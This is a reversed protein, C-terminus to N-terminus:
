WGCTRDKNQEDLWAKLPAFYALVASGDMERSGTFTELVDPWPKSAGMQLMEKFRAGVEENGYVSCRHLPGDWGAQECAAQHFQFQLIHALFYRMYPTNGPIHFKAGPDFANAPRDGPAAVGQYSERLDWWAENYDDPTAEGSFVQWRWQDVMLGFPMFAVKDLAQQLLIATDADSGPATDLLGIQKLYQPTISLAVMDGIAEHFGDHAGTQYLPDQDKYARQYINHGIEHHMTVFDEGNVKTCMKIRVDEKSDINWASAHCVVDRDKPDEFLSRDWFTDPLPEFSLSQFFNDAAEAMKVPTYDNETLLATLDYSQGAGEPKVIDFINGWQQAWMNGLLHAPIPGEDPAVDDGYFDNLRARVHCHLSEYLPKVDEFLEDATQRFDDAPMDYKSRWMAGVDKFGLADAGENAIQVMRAYDDKMPPSVTRWGRWAALLNQPDRSHAMTDSLQGLDQSEGDIEVSGTAYTSELRSKIEALERTKEPDEPAPLTLAAKLMGMKRDLAPPLDVGQFRKTANALKVALTTYEEDAEAALKNTDVTIFNNQVWFIRSVKVGLEQLDAEAQEMFARAEEVTPQDGGSCAGLTLALAGVMAWRSVRTNAGFYRGQMRTTM